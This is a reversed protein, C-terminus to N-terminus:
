LFTIKFSMVHIKGIDDTYKIEIKRKDLYIVKWMRSWRYSGKIKIPSLPFYERFCGFEDDDLECVRTNNEYLAMYRSPSNRLHIRIDYGLNTEIDNITYRELTFDINKLCLISEPPTFYLTNREYKKCSVYFLMFFFIVLKLIKM